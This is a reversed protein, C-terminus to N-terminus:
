VGQRQRDVQLRGQAYHKEWRLIAQMIRRRFSRETDNPKFKTEIGLFEALRLVGALTAQALSGESLRRKLPSRNPEASKSRKRMKFVPFHVKQIWFTLSHRSARLATGAHLNQGLNGVVEDPEDAQARGTIGWRVLGDWVPGGPRM